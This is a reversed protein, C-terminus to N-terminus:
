RASRASLAPCLWPAFRPGRATSVSCTQGRRESDLLLLQVPYLLTSCVGHLQTCAELHHNTCGARTPVPAVGRVKDTLQALLEASLRHRSVTEKEEAIAALQQKITAEAIEKDLMGARRGRAEAAAIQEAATLRARQMEENAMVRTAELEAQPCAGCPAVPLRLELCLM